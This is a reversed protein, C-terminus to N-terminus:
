MQGDMGTRSAGAVSLRCLHTRGGFCITCMAAADGNFVKGLMPHSLPSVRCFEQKIVNFHNSSSTLHPESFFTFSGKPRRWRESGHHAKIGDRMVQEERKEFGLSRDKLQNAKQREKV